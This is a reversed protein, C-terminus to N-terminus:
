KRVDHTKFSNRGDGPQEALQQAASCLGGLGINGWRRSWLFLGSSTVSLKHTQLLTRSLCGLTHQLWCAPCPLLRWEPFLPLNGIISLISMMNAWWNGPSSASSCMEWQRDLLTDPKTWNLKTAWEQEVRQLEMSQLMGPKRTWCWSGSSAWVWTWQTLSAMWGNWGRDDGEGGAKFIKWCWHRKWPTLEECWTALINSNWSWCWNKRSCEPSIEKPHVPKM